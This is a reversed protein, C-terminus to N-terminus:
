KGEGQKKKLVPEDTGTANNLHIITQSGIVGDPELGESLQYQKVLGVLKEDYVPNKRTQHKRGQVVSLQKDLWDVESGKHGPYMTGKYNEPTKYLLIHEGTWKKELEKLDITRTENNVICTATQAELATLTAYFEQGKDDLMRLVAPRNLHILDNFIVPKEMCRLGHVRVQKCADIDGKSEYPINWQKFLSQFAADRSQEIPQGSPWELTDLTRVEPSQVTKGSIDTVKVPSPQVKNNYYTAAITAGLGIILLSALAWRLSKSPQRRRKKKGFVEQAAQLLTIIDVTDKGQAYAGLLTRDCIVNILRPIGRSLQHLRAITADPFIQGSGGAIKLRHDVYARVEEKSLSGLHYRATIRQSLQEMDPRSLMDRFEPQGIIILQLLKHQNTELNTLLRVQELVDAMLNQAEEIIIVTRRGRAYADLLHQNILDIFVKISKNDAPYRIDLEDCVTALLEEATVKPNLIFAIDTNKPIQELVCRSITTKGTGVEGTLMVFCGESQLGYMLHALAERHQHSLYLYRPDPSISFPLEKLGFHEKYM